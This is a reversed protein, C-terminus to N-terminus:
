QVKRKKPWSKNNLVCFPAISSSVPLRNDSTSTSESAIIDSLVLLSISLCCLCNAAELEGPGAEFSSSLRPKSWSLSPDSLVMM